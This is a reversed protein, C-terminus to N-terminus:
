TRLRFLLYLGALGFVLNPGWAALFPPLIALYGLSKFVGIAGWFVMAILISTGIGVLTGRKGMRFAFPLGLLTMVLSVFPFAIKAALDVKFKVVEFDLDAIERIYARLERVTMQSPDKWEKLFFAKDEVGPLVAERNEVYGVSREDSFDREWSKSLYLTGQKLVAKEASIRRALTWRAPDLDYVSLGSFSASRPDFAGFHYIRNKARGLVWHRNVSGANLIPADTIRNWIEEAKRNAPPLLREQVILAAVGLLGALVVVPVAARYVSIGCAKMATVENFKTLFGITLLATTLVAIPLVYTTFEPTKFIMFQFLLGLPKGNEYVKDIREFFTVIFSILLLSLFALALIGAYKRMVYRDLINPFVLFRRRRRPRPGKAADRGTKRAFVRLSLGRGRPLLSRERLALVFLVAAAAALITGPGWMGLWPALRGDMAMKEGATILIYYVLIVGLSVTFGSTRGGKRTSVGLPLGLFCFIVCVFPLAFKKHVEVLHSRRDRSRSELRLATAKTRLEAALTETDKRIARLDKLLEGIDKERVRKTSSITGFFSEVDIEEEWREFSTLSYKDPTAPAFSHVTGDFLELTARKREPYFNLRGRRALVIKPEEPAALSHVFVREWDKGPAANQVFLVLRPFRENFERPNINVQVKSLVQGTLTQIWKYNARPAVYLALVSTLLWGAAAFLLLPRLLRLHSIGLTKFATVELDTSLRGLGALIGMLVAMPLTFALISPILYILIEAVTRFGVGHTIFLEALILIQNMLLVFTYVLLGLGFPPAVEKLVYRDFLKLM